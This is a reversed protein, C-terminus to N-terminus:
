PTLTFLTDTVPIFGKAALYSLPSLNTENLEEQLQKCTAGNGYFHLIVRYSAGETEESIIKGYIM